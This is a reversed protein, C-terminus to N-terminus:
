QAGRSCMLLITRGAQDLAADIAYVTAGHLVRMSSEIGARYRITIKTQTQAQEADAALYERGSLDAVEAWVKGDGSTVVNAWSEVPQGAGDQTTTRRQILVRKNLRQALSM